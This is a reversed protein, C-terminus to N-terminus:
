VRDSGSLKRVMQMDKFMKAVQPNEEVEEMLYHWKLAHVMMKRYARDFKSIEQRFREELERVNELPLETQYWYEEGDVTDECDYIDDSVACAKDCEDYDYVEFIEQAMAPGFPNRSDYSSSSNYSAKAMPVSYSKLRTPRRAM